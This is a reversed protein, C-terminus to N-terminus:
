ILLFFYVDFIKVQFKRTADETSVTDDLTAMFQKFTMM